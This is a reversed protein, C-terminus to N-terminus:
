GTVDESEVIAAATPAALVLARSLQEAELCKQTRRCCKLISDWTLLREFAKCHRTGVHHGGVCPCNKPCCGEQTPNPVEITLYM